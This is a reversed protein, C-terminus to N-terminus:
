VAHDTEKGAHMSERTTPTASDQVATADAYSELELAGDPGRLYSTMSCNAM